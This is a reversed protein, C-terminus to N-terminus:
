LKVTSFMLTSVADFRRSEATKVTGRCVRRRHPISTTHCRRDVFVSSTVRRGAVAAPAAAAAPSALTSTM